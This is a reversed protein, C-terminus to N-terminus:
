IEQGSDRAHKFTRTIPLIRQFATSTVPASDSYFEFELEQGDQTTM